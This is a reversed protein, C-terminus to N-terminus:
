LVRTTTDLIRQREGHLYSWFSKKRIAKKSSSILIIDIKNSLLYGGMQKIVLKSWACVMM